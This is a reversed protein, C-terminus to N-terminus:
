CIWKIKKYIYVHVSVRLSLGALGELGCPEKDATVAFHNCSSRLLNSGASTRGCRCSWTLKLYIYM